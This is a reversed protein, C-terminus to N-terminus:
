YDYGMSLDAKWNRYDYATKSDISYVKKALPYYICPEGKLIVKGTEACKSEFRAKIEYPDNKM